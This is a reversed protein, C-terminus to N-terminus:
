VLVTKADMELVLVALLEVIEEAPEKEEGFHKWHRFHCM